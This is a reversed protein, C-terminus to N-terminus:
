RGGARLALIQMVDRKAKVVDEVYTWNTVAQKQHASFQSAHHHGTQSSTAAIGGCASLVLAAAGAGIVLKTRTLM